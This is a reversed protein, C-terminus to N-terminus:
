RYSNSGALRKRRRYWCESFESPLTAFTPSVEFEPWGADIGSSRVWNRAYAIQAAHSFAPSDEGTANKIPTFEELPSAELVLSSSAVFCM